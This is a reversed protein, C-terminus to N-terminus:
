MPPPPPPSAPPADSPVPEPPPAPATDVPPPPQPAPPQAPSPPPVPHPAPPPEEPATVSADRLMAGSSQDIEFVRPSGGTWAAVYLKGAEAFFRVRQAPQDPLGLNAVAVSHEGPLVEIHLRVDDDVPALPDGDVSIPQVSSGGTVRLIAITEPPRPPGPYQSIVFTPGGCALPAVATLVAILLWSRRSTADARGFNM